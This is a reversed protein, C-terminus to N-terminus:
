TPHGPVARRQPQSSRPVMRCYFLRSLRSNIDTPPPSVWDYNPTVRKIATEVGVDFANLTPNIDISKGTIGDKANLAPNIDISKGTISDKASFHACAHLHSTRIPLLVKRIQATVNVVYMM